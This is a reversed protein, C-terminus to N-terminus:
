RLNKEEKICRRRCNNVTCWTHGKEVSDKKGGGAYTVKRETMQLSSLLM